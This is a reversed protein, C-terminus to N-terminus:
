RLEITFDELDVIRDPGEIRFCYTRLPDYVEKRVGHSATKSSILDWGLKDTGDSSVRHTVEETRFNYNPPLGDMVRTGFWICEDRQNVYKSLKEFDIYVDSYGIPTENSSLTVGAGELTRSLMMFTLFKMKKVLIIRKMIYGNEM